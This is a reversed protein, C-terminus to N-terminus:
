SVAFIHAANDWLITRKIADGIDSYLIRGLQFSFGNLPQDSGYLIQGIPANETLWKLVGRRMLSVGTDFFFNPRAHAVELFRQLESKDCGGLHAYIFQCDPYDALMSHFFEPSPDHHTHCLVPCRRQQATEWALRYSRDATATDHLLCHLKIGRCGLVDFCREMEAAMESEYNPNYVAYGVIRDPFEAVAQGIRDNGSRFDPGIALIDSVAFREIGAQDMTEVMDRASWDPYYKHEWRGIHGHIDFVRFGERGCPWRSASGQPQQPLGLLRRANNGAIATHEADSLPANAVSGLPGGPDYAPMDTGFLLRDPGFREVIERVIGSEQIYCTDLHINPYQDWVSFLVRATTGGERLLVLPLEPHREAIEFLRSWDHKIESWGGRDMDILLPIRAEALAGLLPRLTQELLPYRHAQPLLRLARVNADQMRKVLERPEPMDGTGPPLGVWCAHLRSHGRLTEILWENGDAPHAQRSLSPYVLAEAIGVRDMEALLEPVTRFSPERNTNTPGLMSNIDFFNLSM